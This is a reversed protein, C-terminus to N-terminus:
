KLFWAPLEVQAVYWWASGLTIKEGNAQFCRVWAQAKRKNRAGAAVSVLKIEKM